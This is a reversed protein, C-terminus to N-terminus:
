TLRDVCSTTMSLRQVLTEVCSSVISWGLLCLVKLYCKYVTPGVNFVNARMTCSNYLHKTNAPFTQNRRPLMLNGTWHLDRHDPCTVSSKVGLWGQLTGRLDCAFNDPWEVLFLQICSQYLADGNISVDILPLIEFGTDPPCDWRVMRPPEEQGAWSIHACFPSLARNM